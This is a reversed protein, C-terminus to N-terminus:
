RDTQEPRVLYQFPWIDDKRRSCGVCAKPILIWPAQYARGNDLVHKRCRPCRVSNGLVLWLIPGVAIPWGLDGFGWVTVMMVIVCVAFLGWLCRM